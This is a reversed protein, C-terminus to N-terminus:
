RYERYSVSHIFLHERRYHVIHAHAFVHGSYGADIHGCDKRHFSCGDRLGWKQAISAVAASYMARATLNWGRQDFDCAKGSYHLSNRIHGGRAYCHIQGPHYGAAVVDRIFGEIKPAFDAAVTIPIGAATQVTVLGARVTKTAAHAINDVVSHHHEIHRHRAVHRYHHTRNPTQFVLDGWYPVMRIDYQNGIERAQASVCFAFFLVTATAFFARM